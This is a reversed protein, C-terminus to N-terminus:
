SIVNVMCNLKIVIMVFKIITAVDYTKCVTYANPKCCSNIRATM